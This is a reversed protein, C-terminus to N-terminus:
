FGAIDSRPMYGFCAEVDRLSVQELINMAAKKKKESVPFL